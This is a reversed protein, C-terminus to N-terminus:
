DSLAITVFERFGRLASVTAEPLLCERGDERAHHFRHAGYVGAVLPYGTAIVTKLEGDAAVDSSQPDALGPQDAFAHRAHEILNPSTVLYRQPDASTLPSLQPGLDHWDRAAVNSGLHLWLATDRPLPARAMAQEAGLNEYEHGSTCVFALNHRPLTSAAWRALGLWIAVGPGREGACTFWGSRPTSVILWTARGRDLRAVVNFASRRDAQGTIRLTAEGARAAARRFPTADDPALVAVPKAFMPQRGDANLAIAKGTPGNTVLLAAKVGATFLSDTLGQIPKASSWRAFPLDILAIANRLSDTNTSATAVDIRVLPATIGPSGTPVVIAQPIVNARTGDAEAEATDIDFFPVSFPQREVAFGLAVLEAALWEGTAMDGAGGSAKIGFGVYRELDRAIRDDGSTAAGAM